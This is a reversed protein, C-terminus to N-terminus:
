LWIFFVSESKLHKGQLTCSIKLYLKM